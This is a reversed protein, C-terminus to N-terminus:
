QISESTRGGAHDVKEEGPEVFCVAPPIEKGGPLGRRRYGSMIDSSYHMGRLRSGATIRTYLQAAIRERAGGCDCAAPAICAFSGDYTRRNRIALSSSVSSRSKGPSRRAYLRM